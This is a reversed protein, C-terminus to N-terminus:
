THPDRVTRSEGTEILGGRPLSVLYRKCWKRGKNTHIRAHCHACLTVLNDAKCNQKNEDVHHVHLSFTREKYGCLTCCCGDRQRIALKLEETWASSYQKDYRKCVGKPKRIPYGDVDHTWVRHPWVEEIYKAMLEPNAERDKLRELSERVRQQYIADGRRGM